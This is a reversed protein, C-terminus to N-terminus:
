GPKAILFGRWKAHIGFQELHLNNIENKHEECTYWNDCKGCYCQSVSPAMCLYILENEFVPGNCVPTNSVKFKTMDYRKYTWTLKRFSALQQNAHKQLITVQKNLQKESM